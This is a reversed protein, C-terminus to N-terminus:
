TAASEADAGDLRLGAVFESFTEAVTRWAYPADRVRWIRVRLHRCTPILSV